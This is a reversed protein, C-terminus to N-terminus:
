YNVVMIHDDHGHCAFLDGVMDGDFVLNLSPSSSPVLGEEM